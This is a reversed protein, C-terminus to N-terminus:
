FFAIKGRFPITSTHSLARMNVRVGQDIWCGLDARVVCSVVSLAVYGLATQLAGKASLLATDL